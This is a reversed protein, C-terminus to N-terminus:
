KEIKEFFDKALDNQVRDEVIGSLKVWFTVHSSIPVYWVCSEGVGLFGYRLRRRLNCYFPTM